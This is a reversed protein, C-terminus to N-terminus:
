RCVARQGAVFIFTQNGDKKASTYNYIAQQHCSVIQVLEQHDPSDSPSRNQHGARRYETYMQPRCHTQPTRQQSRISCSWRKAPKCTVESTGHLRNKYLFTSSGTLWSITSPQLVYVIYRKTNKSQVRIYFIVLSCGNWLVDIRHLLGTKM